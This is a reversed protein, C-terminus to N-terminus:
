KIYYGSVSWVGDKDMMPTATEVAAKKNAFSTDFQIVVYEGDPAGPLSARYTKTKVKRTLVKGLPKRAGQAAQKWQEQTVANRFYEAAEEWSELYKQSDVLGLWKEASLVAAKEKDSSGAILPVASLTLAIIILISIKHIM